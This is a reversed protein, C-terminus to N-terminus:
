FILNYIWKLGHFIVALMMFLGMMSTIFRMWRNGEIVNLWYM